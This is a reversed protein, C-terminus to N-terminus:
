NSALSEKVNLHNPNLLYKERFFSNDKNILCFILIMFLTDKPLNTTGNGMISIGTAFVLSTCSSKDAGGLINLWDKKKLPIFCM